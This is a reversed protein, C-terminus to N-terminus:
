HGRNNNYFLSSLQCSCNGFAHSHHVETLVELKPCGSVLQLVDEDKANFNDLKVATLAGGHESIVRVFGDSYECDLLELSRLAGCCQLMKKLDWDDLYFSLGLHELRPLQGLKEPFGHIMNSCLLELRELNAMKELEFQVDYGIEKNVRTVKLETLSGLHDAVSHELFQLNSCSELVLSKLNTTNISSFCLGTLYRCYRFEIKELVKDAIFQSFTTDGVSCRYFSVRQVFKFNDHLNYQRLESDTCEIRYLQLAGLNPCNEIIMALNELSVCYISAVSAGLKKIWSEFSKHESPKLTCTNLPNEKKNRDNKEIHIHVGQLYTLVLAQWRRSARETRILDQAPVYQLVARWCDENLYDLITRDNSVEAELM